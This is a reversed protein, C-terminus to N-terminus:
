KEGRQYSMRDLYGQLLITAAIADVVKKRKKRSMDAEALVREAAVTTLREDYFDVEIGLQEELRKGFAQCMLGREGVDGNMHRPLGVVIRDVGHESVIEGIRKVAAEDSERKLVSLGQALFGTPDSLALGIRALGYDVGLIRM